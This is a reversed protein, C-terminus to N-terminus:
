NKQSELDSEGEEQGFIQLLGATLSNKLNFNSIYTSRVAYLPNSEPSVSKDNTSYFPLKRVYMWRRGVKRLNNTTFPMQKGTDKIMNRDRYSILNRARM